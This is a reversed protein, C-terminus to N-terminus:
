MDLFQETLAAEHHKDGFKFRYASGLDEMLKSLKTSGPTVGSVEPDAMVGFSGCHVTRVASFAKAPNAVWTVHPEVCPLGAKAVAINEKPVKDVFVDFDIKDPFAIHM